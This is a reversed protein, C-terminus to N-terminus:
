GASRGSRLLLGLGADDIGCKNSVVELESAGHRVLAEILVSPIGCLGFGGVAITMGTAIGSIAEDASTVLKDM